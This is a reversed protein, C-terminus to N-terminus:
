RGLWYRVPGRRRLRRAEGTSRPLCWGTWVGLLFVCFLAIFFFLAATTANTM